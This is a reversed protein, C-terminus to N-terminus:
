LNKRHLHYMIKKLLLDKHIPKSIYDDCGAALCIAKDESMAYATQAIIPTKVGQMRLQKTADLGNMLPLRIDMIILLPKFKEVKEIAEVGSSARIIEMGSGSLYEDLFAFSLDDDEVILVSVGELKHNEEKYFIPKSIPPAHKPLTYPIIFSFRTGKGPTSEVYINGGMLKVLGKCISLGLGSGGYIKTPHSELQRFPKFLNPIQKRPIGIGTDEVFFLLDTASQRKYGFIIRGDHTFKVANNLLNMMIQRLRYEDTVFVDESVEEFAKVLKISVKNMRELEKLYITYLDNLLAHINCEQEHLQMQNAEIKSIDVLDDIIHLLQENCKNIIEVYHNCTPNGPVERLLLGSFGIIGNMPTRIEHSLNALFSSKLQDSEQAKEKAERLARENEKQQSIDSAIGAIRYVNNKDDLIPFLRTWLWRITGHKDVVRVQRSIPKAGPIKKIAALEQFIPYDEPFVFKSLTSVDTFDNTSIGLKRELASNVYILDNGETLWFIDDLNEAFQHFKEENAKIAARAKVIEDINRTVTLVYSEGRFKLVSASMLGTITSGDKKRFRFELNSVSGKEKVQSIMKERDSPDVWINIDYSTKGQVDSREYGTIKTFGDNIDIYMGDSIRNINVSDPSIKFAVHFKEENELLLQHTEALKEHQRVLLTNLRTLEINKLTLEDQAILLEENKANLTNQIDKLETVDSLMTVVTGPYVQFAHINLYIEVENKLCPVATKKWSSGNQAVEKFISALETHAYGPIAKEIPLGEVVGPDINLLEFSSQNGRIFILDNGNWEFFHIGIPSNIIFADLQEQYSHLSPNKSHVEVNKKTSHTM